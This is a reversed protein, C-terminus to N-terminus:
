CSLAQDRHGLGYEQNLLSSGPFVFTALLTYM